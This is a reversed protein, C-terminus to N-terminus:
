KEGEKQWLEIGGLEQISSMPAVCWTHVEKYMNLVEKGEYFELTVKDFPWKTGMVQIPDISNKLPRTTSLTKYTCWNQNLRREMLARM